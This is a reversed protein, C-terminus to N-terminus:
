IRKLSLKIESLFNNAQRLRRIIMIRGLKENAFISRNVITTPNIFKLYFFFFKSSFYRDMLKLSSRHNKKISSILESDIELNLRSINVKVELHQSACYIVNTIFLLVRMRILILLVHLPTLIHSLRLTINRWERPGHWPQPNGQAQGNTQHPRRYFFTLPNLM